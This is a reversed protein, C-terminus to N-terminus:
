EGKFITIESPMVTMSTQQDIFKITPNGQMNISDVTALKGRLDALEGVYKVKTGQIVQRNKPDYHAPYIAYGFKDKGSGKTGSQQQVSMGITMVGAVAVAAISLDRALKLADNKSCGKSLCTGFRELSEYFAKEYKKFISFSKKKIEDVVSATAGFNAFLISSLVIYRIIKKMSGGRLLIPSEILGKNSLKDDKYAKVCCNM